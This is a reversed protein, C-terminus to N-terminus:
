VKLLSVLQKMHGLDFCGVKEQFYQKAVEKHTQKKLLAYRDYDNCLNLIQSSLSMTSLRKKNPFGMGEGIEEHDAILELVPKSVYPKDALLRAGDIPHDMYLKLQEKTMQTTPIRAEFTFKTYAVDHLLAALGLSLLDASKNLGLPGAMGLALTCVNASHQFTDQSYGAGAMIRKLIGTDGTLFEIAKEVRKETRKYGQETDVNRVANEADTVMADRVLNDKVAEALKPDKLRDLGADLYKLYDSEAEEKIYLKKVGKSKLKEIREGEFPDSKKIYHLYKGSVKIYVDFYTEDDARLTGVRIPIYDM